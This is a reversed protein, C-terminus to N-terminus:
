VVSKRDRGLSQIAGIRDRRVASVLGLSAHAEPLEPDLEIARLAFEEARAWSDEASVTLVFQPLLAHSDALGAYAAAYLSDLQVADQFLRLATPIASADRKNWQARGRYYADQAEPSAVHRSATADPLDLRGLLAGVIATAISDQVAFFDGSDSEFVDTWVQRGSQTEILSASVRLRDANRQASGELLWGVNLQRGIELATETSSRFAFSSTRAAVQLGEVGSLSNLVEEALGDGLYAQDQGPSRDAFPLVAIASTSSGLGPVFAGPPLAGEQMSRWGVAGVLVSISLGASFAVAAPVRPRTRASEAVPQGEEVLPATRKLGRRTIDFVWSLAIVAPFATLLLWFLARLADPGLGFAPFLIEGLQLLVFAAAAYAAVTSVVRRRRLERWLKGTSEGM